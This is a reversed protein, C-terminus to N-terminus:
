ALMKNVELTDMKAMVETPYKPNGGGNWKLLAAEVNNNKQKLLHAFFKAGIDINTEPEYLEALYDAIFGQERAVQGMIQMAGFSTSRLYLETTLNCISQDPFYGGLTQRNKGRIYKEFFKPEYRTAFHNGGSEQLIIAAILRPSLDNEYAAKFIHNKLDSPM